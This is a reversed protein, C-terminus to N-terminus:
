ESNKKPRGRKPTVEIRQPNFVIAELIKQVHEECIDFEQHQREIIIRDTAPKGCADCIKM